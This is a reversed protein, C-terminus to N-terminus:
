PNGGSVVDLFAALIAAKSSWSLGDGIALIQQLQRVIKFETSEPERGSTRAQEVKDIAVICRFKREASLSGDLELRALLRQLEEVGSGVTGLDWDILEGRVVQVPQQLISTSDALAKVRAPM